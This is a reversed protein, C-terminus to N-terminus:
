SIQEVVIIPSQKSLIKYIKRIYSGISSLIISNIGIGFIILIYISAYGRPLDPQLFKIAVYYITGFISFILSSIGVFNAIRLPLNSHNSIGQLGLKLIQVLGFKSKGFERASRSYFVDKEIMELSSIIGRLYPDPSQTSVLADVVARDLLRFDGTNRKIPHESVFDIFWYGANRVFNIIGSESRAVRVGSVVKYGEQWNAIFDAILEPPDQLDADLQIVASGLTKSYNFLISQQFGINRAFRFARIRPEDQSEKKIASWTGDNSNNDTFVFEFDFGELTATVEQLRRVLTPINLEENLVPISISILSKPM